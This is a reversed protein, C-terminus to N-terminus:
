TLRRPPVTVKAREFEDNGQLLIPLNIIDPVELYQCTM